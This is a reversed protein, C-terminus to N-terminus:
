RTSDADDIVELAKERAVSLIADLYRKYFKEAESRPLYDDIGRDAIHLAGVIRAVFGDIDSGGRIKLREGGISRITVGGKKGPTTEFSLFNEVFDAAATEVDAEIVANRVGEKESLSETRPDFVYWPWTTVYYNMTSGPTYSSSLIANHREVEVVECGEFSHETIWTGRERLERVSLGYVKEPDSKEVYELINMRNPM